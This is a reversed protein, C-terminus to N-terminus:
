KKLSQQFDEIYVVLPKNLGKANSKKGNIFIPASYRIWNCSVSMYQRANIARGLPDFGFLFSNFASEMRRRNDADRPPYKPNYSKAEGHCDLWTKINHRTYTWPTPDHATVTLPNNNALADPRSAYATVDHSGAAKRAQKLSRFIKNQFTYHIM